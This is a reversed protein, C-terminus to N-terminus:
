RMTECGARFVIGGRMVLVYRDGEKVYQPVAYSIEISMDGTKATMSCTPPVGSLFDGYSLVEGPRVKRSLLGCWMDCDQFRLKRGAAVEISRVLKQMDNSLTEKSVDGEYTCRLNVNRLRGTKEEFWPRWETFVGKPVDLRQWDSLAARGARNTQESKFDLDLLDKLARRIGEGDAQRKPADLRKADDTSFSIRLFARGDDLRKVEAQVSTSVGMRGFGLSRSHCSVFTTRYDNTQDYRPYFRDGGMFSLELEDRKAELVGRAWTELAEVSAIGNTSLVAAFSSIRGYESLRFLAGDFDRWKDALPVERGEWGFSAPWNTLGDPVVAAAEANTYVDGFRYGLPLALPESGGGAVAKASEFFRGRRTYVDAQLDSDYVDVSASMGGKGNVMGYVNAQVTNTAARDLFDFNMSTHAFSTSHGRRGKVNEEETKTLSRPQLKLKLGYHANLDAVVKELMKVCEERTMTEPCNAHLSYSYLKKDTERFNLEAREFIHYPQVFPASARWYWNTWAHKAERYDGDYSVSYSRTVAKPFRMALEDNGLKLAFPSDVKIDEAFAGLAACVSVVLLIKMANM